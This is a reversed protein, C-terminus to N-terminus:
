RNELIAVALLYYKLPYKLYFRNVGDTDDAWVRDPTRALRYIERWSERSMLQYASLQGNKM